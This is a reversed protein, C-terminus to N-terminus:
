WDHLCRHARGMAAVTLTAYRCQSHGSDLEIVLTASFVNQGMRGM